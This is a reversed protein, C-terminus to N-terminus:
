AAVQFQMMGFGVGMTTEYMVVEGKAGEVVGAVAVWNRIEHTGNGVADLEADTIKKLASSNACLQKLFKKDFKPDVKGM